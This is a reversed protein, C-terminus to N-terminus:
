GAAAPSFVRLRHGDPDLACFTYGFDMRAPEQAIAVGKSRWAAATAAVDADSDVSICIEGGGPPNPKPEVDVARWLGLMMGPAAAFMAFGESAELAPKGLIDAYFAEARAVDAVYLLVFSIDSM